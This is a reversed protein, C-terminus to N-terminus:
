LFTKQYFWVSEKARAKNPTLFLYDDCYRLYVEDPATKLFNQLHERDLTNYYIECLMASLHMGQPIGHCIKFREKGITTGLRHVHDRIHMLMPLTNVIQAFYVNFVCM